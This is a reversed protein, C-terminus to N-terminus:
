LPHFYEAGSAISGRLHRGKNCSAVLLGKEPTMSNRGYPEQAANASCRLVFEAPQDAFMGGPSLTNVHIGHDTYHHTLYRTLHLLRALSLQHRRGIQGTGIVAIEM